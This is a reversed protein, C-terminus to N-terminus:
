FQNELVVVYKQKQDPIDQWLKQKSKLTKLKRFEDFDM